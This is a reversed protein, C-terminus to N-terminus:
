DRVDADTAVDRHDDSQWWSTRSFGVVDEAKSQWKRDRHKRRHRDAAHQARQHAGNSQISHTGVVKCDDGETGSLDDMLEDGVVYGEEVAVTAQEAQIWGEQVHEPRRLSTRAIVYCAPIYLLYRVEWLAVYMDGNAFIGQAVGLVVAAAFLFVPWGLTAANASRHGVKTSTVAAVVGFILLLELPSLPLPLGSWSEIGRHFYMGLELLPDAFLSEFVIVAVLVIKLTLRALGGGEATSVATRQLLRPRGLLVDQAIM